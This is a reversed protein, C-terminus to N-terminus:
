LSLRATERLAVHNIDGSQIYARASVNVNSPTDEEGQQLFGPLEIVSGYLARDCIQLPLIQYCLADFLWKEPFGDPSGATSHPEERSEKVTSRPAPRSCVAQAAAGLLQHRDEEHIRAAVEHAAALQDVKSFQGDRACKPGKALLNMTSTSLETDALITPPSYVARCNEARAPNISQIVEPWSSEILRDAERLLFIFGPNSGYAPGFVRSM